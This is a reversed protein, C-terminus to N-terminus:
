NCSFKSKHGCGGCRDPVDDLYAAQQHPVPGATSGLMGASTLRPVCDRAGRPIQQSGRVHTEVMRRCLVAKWLSFISTRGLLWPLLHGTSGTRGACLLSNNVWSEYWARPAM